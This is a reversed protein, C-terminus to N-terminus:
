KPKKRRCGGCGGSMKERKKIDNLVKKRRKLRVKKSFLKRAM